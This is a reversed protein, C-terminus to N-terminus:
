GKKLRNLTRGIYREKPLIARQIKSAYKISDTISKNKEELIASIRKNERYNRYIIFAFLALIVMLSIGTWIIFNKQDLQRKQDEIEHAKEKNEKEQMETDYKGQLELMEKKTRTNDLTDRVSIFKMYYDYANRYDKKNKYLVSMKEYGEKLWELYNSELAYELGRQYYDVSRDFDGKANYIDAINGYTNAMGKKDHLEEKLKLSQQLYDIAKDMYEQNQDHEAMQFFLAGMSNLARARMQKDNMEEDLRLAKINYEMAKGFDNKQTYAVAINAMFSAQDRKSNIENSIALGREFYKLSEDFNRAFLQVSGLSRLAKIIDKKNGKEEDVKLQKLFYELASPYNGKGIYYNGIVSAAQRIGRKFLKKESILLASKCLRFADEPSRDLLEAGLNGATIAWVTDSDTHQALMAKLSDVNLHKQGAGLLPLLSCFFLALRKLM